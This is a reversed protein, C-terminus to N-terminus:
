NLKVDKLPELLEEWTFLKEENTKNSQPEQKKGQFLGHKSLLVPIEGKEDVFLVSTPEGGHIVLNDKTSPSSVLLHPVGKSIGLAVNPEVSKQFFSISPTSGGRMFSAVDGDKDALGVAAGGDGLTLMTAIIESQPNKMFIAPSNGGQIQMRSVNAEDKLSIMPKSEEVISIEVLQHQNESMVISPKEGGTIQMTKEGSDSIFSVVGVGSTADLVLCPKGKSNTITIKQVNIEKEAQKSSLFFLTCFLLLSLFSTVSLVRRCLGKM